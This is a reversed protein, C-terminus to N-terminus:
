VLQKRGQQEVQEAEIKTLESLWEMLVRRDNAIARATDIHGVGLNLLTFMDTALQVQDPYWCAHYGSRRHQDYPIVVNSRASHFHCTIRGSRTWYDLQRYTMGQIRELFEQSGIGECDTM